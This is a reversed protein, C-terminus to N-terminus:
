NRGKALKPDIRIQTSNVGAVFTTVLDSWATMGIALGCRHSERLVRRAQQLYHYPPRDAAPDPQQRAAVPRAPNDPGPVPLPGAVSQAIDQARIGVCYRIARAGGSTPLSRTKARLRIRRSTTRFSSGVMRVECTLANRNHCPVLTAIKMLANIWADNSLRPQPRNITSIVTLWRNNVTPWCAVFIMDANRALGNPTRNRDCSSGRLRNASVPLSTSLDLISAASVTLSGERRSHM